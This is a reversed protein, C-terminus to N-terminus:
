GKVIKMNLLVNNHNSLKLQYFGQKIPPTIRIRDEIIISTFVIRGTPDIIDLRVNEIGPDLELTLDESFPNPYVHVKINPSHYTELSLCANVSQIYYTTNVCNNSDIGTISYMTSISPTVAQTMTTFGNSWTYSQAGSATLLVLDGACSIPQSPIVTLIPLAFVNITATAYGVCGNNGMGALSYTTSLQPTVFTSGGQLTYSVAGSPQFIHSQGQCLQGGNLTVIPAPNVEITGTAVNSCGNIGAGTVTYETTSIPSLTNSNNPLTYSFAGSPTITFIEGECILGSNLSVTVTPIVNVTITLPAGFYCTNTTRAYFTSSGQSLPPTVFLSGSGVSFFSSNNFWMVSGTAIASLTASTLACITLNAVPTTNIPTFPSPNCDVFRAFFADTYAGGFTVQHAGPSAMVSYTDSTCGTLYVGGSSDAACGYLRDETTGGYYTSSQIIGGANYKVLFADMYGGAYITQHSLPTSMSTGTSTTRGSLYVNGFPDVACGMGVDSSDAGCYTSWVRVGSPDFKAIYADYWGNAHTPQQCNPSAIGNTSQTAGVIYFNDTQDTSCANVTESLGGGFYTGWLRVGASNFKAAFGDTSGACVPQHSGLTAIATSSGSASAVGCILINGQGDISAMAAYDAYYSGYFTAWLRTGSGTFKALFADSVGNNYQQHSGPTAILTSNGDTSGLLYVDGNRDAVCSIGIEYGSEGYFTGWLRQGSNDFKVLFADLNISGGSHTPQHSGPTAIVSGGFTTSIGTLYVNGATDVSAGYAQDDGYGGIYTSWVRIGSSTFKAVFADYNGSNDVNVQHTGATAIGDPSNSCGALYVNGFRDSTIAYGFDAGTGGYYTGWSRVLPDITLPLRPNYNKIAFSIENGNIIWESYLLKNEQYVKPAEEVINGLPTSICISGNENKKLSTAGRIVLRIQKYDAFPELLYDYKLIHNQQYYHLDIGNYIGKYTFGAYSSVQLGGPCNTTYFNTLGPEVLDTIIKSEKNCGPWDIDIRYISLKDAVSVTDPRDLANFHLNPFHRKQWSDVRALQYSIGTKRFHYSIDSSSTYFLIDPRTKYNQDHIQGKNEVFGTFPKESGCIQFYIIVALSTLLHKM